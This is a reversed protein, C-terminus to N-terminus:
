IYMYLYASLLIAGNRIPVHCHAIAILDLFWKGDRCRESHKLNRCWINCIYQRVPFKFTNTSPHSHTGCRCGPWLRSSVHCWINWTVRNHRIVTTPEICLAWCALLDNLYNSPIIANQNSAGCLSYWSCCKGIKIAMYYYFFFVLRRTDFWFNLEFHCAVRGAELWTRRRRIYTYRLTLPFLPEFYQRHPGGAFDEASTWISNEKWESASPATAIELIFGVDAMGCFEDDFLNVSRNHHCGFDPPQTHLTRNTTLPSPFNPRETISQVRKSRGWRARFTSSSPLINMKLYNFIFLYYSDHCKIRRQEAGALISHCRWLLFFWYLMAKSDGEHRGTNTRTRAYNRQLVNRISQTQSTYDDLAQTNHSPAILMILCFDPNTLSKLRSWFM